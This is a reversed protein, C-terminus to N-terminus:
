SVSQYTRYFAYAYLPIFLSVLRYREMPACISYLESGAVPPLSVLWESWGLEPDPDSQEGCSRSPEEEEEGPPRRPPSDEEVRGGCLLNLLFVAFNQMPGFTRRARGRRGMGEGGNERDGGSWGVRYM